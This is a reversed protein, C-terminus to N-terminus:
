VMKVNQHPRWPIQQLKGILRASLTGDDMKLVSIQSVLLFRCAIYPDHEKLKGTIDIGGMSFKQPYLQLKSHHVVVEGMACHIVVTNGWLIHPSLALHSGQLSRQQCQQDEGEVYVIYLEENGGRAAMKLFERIFRGFWLHPHSLTFKIFQYKCFWRRILMPFVLSITIFKQLCLSVVSVSTFM